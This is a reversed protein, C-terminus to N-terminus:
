VPAEPRGTALPRVESEQARLRLTLTGVGLMLASAIWFPYAFGIQFAAGSWLPGVMRSVGGFSQQVGMVQGTEHRPSRRSVLATTSPFLLATGVPSLLAVLALVAIRGANPLDLWAPLPMCALGISLSLAGLRVVGVEGFRRVAPGLLIARMVVGIGGVYVFFWGITKKTVAFQAGLYLPLIATTASFAMMGIAYIWILSSVPGSPHKLVEFIAGRLRRPAAAHDGEEKHRQPEPLWRGAFLVNALCLGAALFGPAQQGFVSALSGIAPGIMVGASTAATLWGLGRAREEPPVSDAVYAQIVGTTGGAAGQVLRFALLLWITHALGFLAYAIGEAVLGLLIMPRRGYRDSLRGWIPASALQAFAFASMLVGVLWPKAGMDTAYFPLLPQVMTFGIMDIFATAMLIWIQRVDTM